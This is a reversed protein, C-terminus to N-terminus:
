SLPLLTLNRNSQHMTVLRWNLPTVRLTLHHLFMYTRSILKTGPSSRVQKLAWLSFTSNHCLLSPWTIKESRCWITVYSWTQPTGLNCNKYMMIHSVQTLVFCVRDENLCFFYTLVVMGRQISWMFNHQGTLTWLLPSYIYRWLQPHNKLNCKYWAKSTWLHFKQLIPSNEWAFVLSTPYCFQM